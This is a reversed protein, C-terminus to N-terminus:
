KQCLFNVKPVTRSHPEHLKFIYNQGIVNDFLIQSKLVLHTFIFRLYTTSNLNLAFPGYQQPYTFFLDLLSNEGEQSRYIKYKIGGVGM